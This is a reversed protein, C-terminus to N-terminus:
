DLGGRIVALDGGRTLMIDRKALACVIDKRGAFWDYPVFFHEFVEITPPDKRQAIELESIGVSCIWFSRSLFILKKSEDIGIVHAVSLEFATMWSRHPAVPSSTTLLNEDDEDTACQDLQKGLLFSSDNNEISLCDADIIAIMNISASSNPYLLDLIIRQKQGLSYFSASKIEATDNDLSLAISSVESWDSWCYASIKVNDVCVMHLSSEPHSLWKRIGPVLPYTREREFKGSDLNFLYDSGRTSVLFKAALEGVLVDIIAKESDLHSKFLVTSDSLWGKDASKRIRHAFIRNSADISLLADRREIWVLLRVPSKHSYLIGLSAVMKREYLVVSGDDKGCFIVEPTHHVAMATIKAKAEMSVTEVVTTFTAGSSDDSISGRLLAEPEWVTCQAGRIDALFM